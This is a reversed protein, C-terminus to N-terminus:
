ERTWGTTNASSSEESGWLTALQVQFESGATLQAWSFNQVERSLLMESELALPRLRYLRLQFGDRGGPPHSWSARLAAPQTSFGLSLNTPPAPGQLVPLSLNLLIHIGKGRALELAGISLEVRRSARLETKLRGLSIGRASIPDLLQGQSGAQGSGAEQRSTRQSGLGM